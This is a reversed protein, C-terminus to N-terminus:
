KEKGRHRKTVNQEGPAESEGDIRKVVLERHMGCADEAKAATSKSRRDWGNSSVVWAIQSYATEWNWKCNDDGNSRM